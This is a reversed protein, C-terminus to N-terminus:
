LKARAEYDRLISESTRLRQQKMEVIATKGDKGAASIQKKLNEIEEKKASIKSEWNSADEMVTETMSEALTEIAKEAEEDGSEYGPIDNILDKIAPDNEAGILAAEPDDLFADKVSTTSELIAESPFNGEQHELIAKKLETLLIIV